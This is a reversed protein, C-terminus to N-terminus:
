TKINFEPLNALFKSVEVSDGLNNILNQANSTNAIVSTYTENKIGINRLIKRQQDSLIDLSRTPRIQFLEILRFKPKQYPQAAIQFVSKRIENLVIHQYPKQQILNFVNHLALEQQVALYALSTTKRQSLNQTIAVHRVEAKVKSISEIYEEKIQGAGQGINIEGSPPPVSVGCFYNELFDQFEQQSSLLFPPNIPYPWITSGKFFETLSPSAPKKCVQILYYKKRWKGMHNRVWGLEKLKEQVVDLDAFLIEITTFDDASLKGLGNLDHRVVDIVDMILNIDEPSWGLREHTRRCKVNQNNVIEGLTNQGFPRWDTIQNCNQPIYALPLLRVDTM